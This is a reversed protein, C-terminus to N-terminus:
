KKKLEPIPPNDAMNVTLQSFPITLNSVNCIQVLTTQIERRNEEYRDACKGNAHFMIMLNLSSSAPNDVRVELLTFDPSDGEM